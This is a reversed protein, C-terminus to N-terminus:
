YPTPRRARYDAADSEQQQEAMRAEKSFPSAYFARREVDTRGLPRYRYGTELQQGGCGGGSAAVLIMGVAAGACAAAAGRKPGPESMRETREM